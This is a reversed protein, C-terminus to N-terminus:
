LNYKEADIKMEFEEIEEPTSKRLIADEKIYRGIKNVDNVLYRHVPSNLTAYDIDLIKVNGEFMLYLKGDDSKHLQEIYIYDGINYQPKKNSFNEFIHLKEM